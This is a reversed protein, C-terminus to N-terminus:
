IMDRHAAMSEHGLAQVTAEVVDPDPDALSALLAGVREESPPASVLGEIAAERVAPHAHGLHGEIRPYFAEGESMRSVTQIGAVIDEMQESDLLQMVPENGNRDSSRRDLRDIIVLFESQVSASHSHDQLRPAIASFIQDRLGADVTAKGEVRSGEIARAMYRAASLRVEEDEDGLLPLAHSLGSTVGDGEGGLADLAASRIRPNEHTVLPPCVEAAAAPNQRLIEIGMGRVGDDRHLLLSRPFETSQSLVSRMSAM